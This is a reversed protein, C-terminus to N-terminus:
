PVPGQLLLPSPAVELRAQAADRTEPNPKINHQLVETVAGQLTDLYHAITWALKQGGAALEIGSVVDPATVFELQIGEGFCTTVATQIAEQQAAPLDFASRLVARSKAAQMASAMDAHAPGDLAQLHRIFVTAIHADLSADALDKLTQRAIDFVENQTRSALAHQLHAAEDRLLKEQKARLDAADQRAADILRTREQGAEQDAKQLLAAREQDFATSKQRFSDRLTQAAADTATADAIQKAIRAERADIADLVPRYLFRKLLWVLVVFNLVQAGVTFWDILM